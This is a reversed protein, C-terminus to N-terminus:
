PVPRLNVACAKYAPQRSHPDVSGLTLRNTEPYHMPVFVQGRRIGHTLFARAKMNGRRSEIMVLQDHRIGLPAADMPSIEVYPMECGMKGLLPSKGTRTLTHWQSSSGRGTLLTLPFRESTPEPLPTPDAFLFCARGDPHFFRGDEFLRRESRPDVVTNEPLPWQIGRHEDLMQYGTIGTIDCPRGRTLERLIGFVAEPSSWREFIDGSGWVEAILKFIYFDALAEGPAHAVKKIRGIRRESNVFTGDKEGWGAAPLLLHARRATETTSYMDQVVLFELRDLAKEAELQNM